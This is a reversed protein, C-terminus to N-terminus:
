PEPRSELARAIAEVVEVTRAAEATRIREFGLSVARAASVEGICVIPLVRAVSRAREDDLLAHLFTAASPSAFVIVQIEGDTLRRQISAAEARAPITRYATVVEVQAGRARLGGPLTERGEEARPMLFRMRALADGYRCVLAELLAEASFTQPVLDVRHGRAECARATSEGVCALARPSVGAPLRSLLAEAANVSTLLVADYACAEAAAADLASPDVPSVIALVPHILPRGGQAEIATALEQAQAATRTLLIGAGRLRGESM